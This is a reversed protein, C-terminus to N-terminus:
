LVELVGDVMEFTLDVVTARDPDHLVGAWLRDGLGDLGNRVRALVFLNNVLGDHRQAGLSSVLRLGSLGFVERVDEAVHGDLGNARRRAELGRM